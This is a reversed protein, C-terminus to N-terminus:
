RQDCHEGVRDSAVCLDAPSLVWPHTPLANGAMTEAEEILGPEVAIKMRVIPHTHTNLAAGVASRAEVGACFRNVIDHSTQVTRITPSSVIRIHPPYQKAEMYPLKDDKEVGDGGAAPEGLGHPGVNVYKTCQLMSSQKCLTKHHKSDIWYALWDGTALAQQHGLSSLPPDQPRSATACWHPYDDDM